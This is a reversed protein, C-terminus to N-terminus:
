EYTSDQLLKQSITMIQIDNVGAATVHQTSFAKQTYCSTASQEAVTFHLSHPNVHKNLFILQSRTLFPGAAALIKYQKQQIECAQV